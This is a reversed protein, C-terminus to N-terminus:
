AVVVAAAAACAIVPLLLLPSTTHSVATGGDSDGTTATTNKTATAEVPTEKPNAEKNENQKGEATGAGDAAPDNNPIGEETSNDAENNAADGNATHSPPRSEAHDDQVRQLAQVPPLDETSSPENMTAPPPSPTATQIGADNAPSGRTETPAEHSLNEKKVEHEEEAEADRSHPTIRHNGADEEQTPTGNSPENSKSTQKSPLGKGGLTGAGGSSSSSSQGAGIEEPELESGNKDDGKKGGNTDVVNPLTVQQGGTDSGEHELTVAAPPQVAVDSGGAGPAPSGETNNPLPKKLSGQPKTDGSLEQEDQGAEAAEVAKILAMRASLLGCDAKLSVGDDGGNSTHRLGNGGGESCYDDMAHGFVAGCWLVCLACVLLVRGIMM